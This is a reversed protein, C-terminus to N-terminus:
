QSAKYAQVVVTRNDFYQQYHRQLEESLDDLETGLFSHAENIYDAEPYGALKDKIVKTDPRRLEQEILPTISEIEEDSLRSWAVHLMEHAATVVSQNYQRGNNYNLIYISQGEACGLKNATCKADLEAQNVVQPEFRYFLKAGTDNMGASNALKVAEASPESVLAHWWDGLSVANTVAFYGAVGVCLLILVDIKRRM